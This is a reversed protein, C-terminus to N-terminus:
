EKLSARLRKALENVIDYLHEREPRHLEAWNQQTLGWDNLSEGLEDWTNKADYHEPTEGEPLAVAEGKPPHYVRPPKERINYDEFLEFTTRGDAFAEIKEALDTNVIPRKSNAEPDALVLAQDLSLGNKCIFIEGLKRFNLAHRPSITLNEEVWKTYQGHPLNAKVFVLMLGIELMMQTATKETAVYRNYATNIIISIRDLDSRANRNALKSDKVTVATTTKKKAM